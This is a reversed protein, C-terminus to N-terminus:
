KYNNTLKIVKDIIFCSALKLLVEGATSWWRHNYPVPWRAARVGGGDLNLLRLLGNVQFNPQSKLRDVIPRPKILKAVKQIM